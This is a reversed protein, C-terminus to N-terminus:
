CGVYSFTYIGAVEDCAVVSNTEKAVWLMMSKDTYYKDKTDELIFAIREKVRQKYAESPAREFSIRLSKM